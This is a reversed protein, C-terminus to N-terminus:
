ATDPDIPSGAVTETEVHPLVLHHRLPMGTRRLANVLTAMDQGRHSAHSVLASAGTRSLLHRVEREGARAGIGVTTLGARENALFAAHVTPGDPLLVAVREGPGLGMAVLAGAIRNAQDDYASWTLTGADAAYAVSTPRTRAHAAVHDGITRDGWWGEERYRAALIPDALNRFAGEDM